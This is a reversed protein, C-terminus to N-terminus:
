LESSLGHQRVPVIANRSAYSNVDTTSRFAHFQGVVWWPPCLFLLLFFGGALGPWGADRLMCSALTLSYSALGLSVGFGSALGSILMWGVGTV